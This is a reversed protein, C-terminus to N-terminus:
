EKDAPTDPDPDKVVLVLRKGDPSWGLDEVGGQLDTVKEAEGGARPLLWVQSVENEDSRNSLFALFRGDPSWRPTTEADKSTTLRVSERGDWSTMWIDSDSKDEKLDRTLVTYAVWGGDPSIQPDSLDKLRVLDDLNFPHPAPLAGLSAALLFSVGFIRCRM